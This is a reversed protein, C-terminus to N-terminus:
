AAERECTRLLSDLAAPYDTCIGDVGWQIFDLWRKRAQQFSGGHLDPSVAHVIRGADHLRRIDAETSWPADFEDLWIIDAEPIALARDISEGRDSVRAALRVDASLERFRRATQGAVPELLEMDFLFVQRLVRQEALFAILAAEDGLEKVNLAITAAPALRFQWCFDEALRGDASARRDHSIYFRGDAARRIDTEIGWGAGLAVRTAPVSNEMSPRAGTVNCRHSLITTM